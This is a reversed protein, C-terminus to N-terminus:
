CVRACVICLFKIIQALTIYLLKCYRFLHPQLPFLENRFYYEYQYLKKKKKKICPGLIQLTLFFVIVRLMSFLFLLLFNGSVHLFCIHM